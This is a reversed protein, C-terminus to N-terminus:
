RIRVEEHEHVHPLLRHQRALDLTRLAGELIQQRRLGFDEPGVIGRGIHGLYHVVDTGHVM